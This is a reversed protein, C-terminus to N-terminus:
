RVNTPPTQTRANPRTFDIREGLDKVNKQLDEKISPEISSPVTQPKVIGVKELVKNGSKIIGPLKKYQSDFKILNEPLFTSIRKSEATVYGMKVYDAFNRNFLEIEAPDQIKGNEINCYFTEMTNEIFKLDKERIHNIKKVVSGKEFFLKEMQKIDKESANIGAINLLQEMNANPEKELLEKMNNKYKSKFSFKQLLKLNGENLAAFNENLCGFGEATDLYDIKENLDMNDYFCNINEWANNIKNTYSVTPYKASSSSSEEKESKSEEDKTTGLGLGLKKLLENTLQENPNISPGTQNNNRPNNSFSPKTNDGSSPNDNKEDSDPQNNRGNRQNQNQNQNQNNFNNNFNNNREGVSESELDMDISEFMVGFEASQNEYNSKLKELSEDFEAIKLKLNKRLDNQEKLDVGLQKLKTENDAIAASKADIEDQSLNPDSLEALLDDKIEKIKAIEENLREIKENSKEIEEEAQKQFDDLQTELKDILEKQQKLILKIINYASIRKENLAKEKEAIENNFETLDKGSLQSKIVEKNLELNNGLTVKKGYKQELINNIESQKVDIQEEIYTKTDKGNVKISNNIVDDIENKKVELDNLLAM